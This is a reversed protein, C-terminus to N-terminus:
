SHKLKPSVAVCCCLCSSPWPMSPLLVPAHSLFISLSLKQGGCMHACVGIYDCVCQLVNCVCYYVMGMDWVCLVSVICVLVDYMCLVDCVCVLVDCVCLVDCLCM